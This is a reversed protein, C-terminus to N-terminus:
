SYTDFVFVTTLLYAIGCLIWHIFRAIESFIQVKWKFHALSANRAHSAYTSACFGSDPWLRPVCVELSAFGLPLCM